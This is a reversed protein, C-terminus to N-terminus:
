CKRALNRGGRNWRTGRGLDWCHRRGRRRHWRYGHIWRGRERWCRFLDYADPRQSVDDDVRESRFHVTPDVHLRKGIRIGVLALRKLSREVLRVYLLHVIQLDQLMPYQIAQVVARQAVATQVLLRFGVRVSENFQEELRGGRRERCGHRRRARSRRYVIM